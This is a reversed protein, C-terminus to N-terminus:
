SKPILRECKRIMTALQKVVEDANSGLMVADSAAKAEGRIADEAKCFREYTANTKANYAKQAVKRKEKAAKYAKQVKTSVAAMTAEGYIATLSLDAHRFRWAGGHHYNTSLRPNKATLYAKLMAATPMKLWGRKILGTLSTDLDEEDVPTPIAEIAESQKVRLKGLLSM